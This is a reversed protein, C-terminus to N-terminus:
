FYTKKGVEDGGGGVLTHFPLNLAPTIYSVKFEETRVKISLLKDLLQKINVIIKPTM